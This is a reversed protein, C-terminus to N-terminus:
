CNQSHRWSSPGGAPRTGQVRGDLADGIGSARAIAWAAVALLACGSGAHKELRRGPCCGAYAAGERSGDRIHTNGQLLAVVDGCARAGPTAKWEKSVDIYLDLLAAVLHSKVYGAGVTEM